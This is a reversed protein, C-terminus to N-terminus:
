ETTEVERTPNSKRQFQNKIQSLVKMFTILKDFSLLGSLEVEDNTIDTMIITVEKDDTNCDLKLMVDELLEFSVDEITPSNDNYNSYNVNVGNTM